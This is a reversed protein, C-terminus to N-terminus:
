QFAAVRERMQCDKSYEEWATEFDRGAQTSTNLLLMLGDCFRIEIQVHGVEPTAPNIYKTLKKVVYCIKSFDIGLTGGDLNRIYNM